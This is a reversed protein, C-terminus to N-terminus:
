RKIYLDMEVTKYDQPGPILDTVRIQGPRASIPRLATGITGKANNNMEINKNSITNYNSPGPTPMRQKIEKPGNGITCRPANRLASNCRRETM